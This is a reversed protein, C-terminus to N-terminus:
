GNFHTTFPNAGIAVKCAERRRQAPLVQLLLTIEHRSLRKLPVRKLLVQLDFVCEAVLAFEV